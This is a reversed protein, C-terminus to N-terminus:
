IGVFKLYIPIIMLMVISYKLNWRVSVEFLDTKMLGSLLNNVATAPSVTNSIGWGSLLLIAFFEYTIGLKTPDISTVIITVTVIPHLGIVATLVILFVIAYAIGITFGSFVANLGNVLENSWGTKVFAGSFFGAILFLVIEKKMRPIGTFVHQKFEVKYEKWEKKLLCWILPFLASFVCIIFTMSSEILKEMFLVGLIMLLLLFLLEVVKRKAKKLESTDGEPQKPEPGKKLRYPREFLYSVILAIGSLGLSYFLINGWKVPLSSTILAMASFYPSWFITSIFGRNICAAIMKNNKIDSAKSLEHIISIAGINLVVGLIHSLLSSGAFFFNPNNMRTSLVLKLASVYGGTRVPIGLLPTFLFIAVLTLNIRAADLWEQVTAGYFVMFIIGVILLILSIIMISGRIRPLIWIIVSIIMISVIAKVSGVPFLELTIYGIALLCIIMGQNGIPKQIPTQM